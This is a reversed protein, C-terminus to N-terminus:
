VGRRLLEKSTPHLKAVGGTLTGPADRADILPSPKARRLLARAGVAGLVLAIVAFLYPLAVPVHERILHYALVALYYWQLGIWFWAYRPMNQPEAADRAPLAIPMPPRPMAIVEERDFLAVLLGLM